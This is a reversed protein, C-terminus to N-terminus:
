SLSAGPVCRLTGEDDRALSCYLQLTRDFFVGGISPPGGDVPSGTLPALRPGSEGEAPRESLAAGETANPERPANEACRLSLVALSVLAVSEVATPRVYPAIALM